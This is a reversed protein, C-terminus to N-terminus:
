AAKRVLEPAARLARLGGPNESVRQQVDWVYDGTLNVHEWGGVHASFRAFPTEACQIMGVPNTTYIKVGSVSAQAPEVSGTRMGSIRILWEPRDRDGIGTISIMSNVIGSSPVASLM